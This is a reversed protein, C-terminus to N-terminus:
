SSLTLCFYKFLIFIDSEGQCYYSFHQVTHCGDIDYLYGFLDKCMLRKGSKCQPCHRSIPPLLLYRPVRIPTSGDPLEPLVGNEVSAKRTDVYCDHLFGFSVTWLINITDHSLTPLSKALYALPRRNYDLDLAEGARIVLDSAISGFLIVEEITITEGINGNLQQILQLFKNLLM